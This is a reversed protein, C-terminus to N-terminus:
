FLIRYTCIKMGTKQYAIKGDGQLDSYTDVVQVAYMTGSELEDIVM